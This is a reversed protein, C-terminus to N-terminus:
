LSLVCVFGCVIPADGREQYVCMVHCSMPTDELSRMHRCSETRTISVCAERRMGGQLLSVPSPLQGAGKGWCCTKFAPPVFTSAVNRKKM